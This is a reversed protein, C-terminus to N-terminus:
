ILSKKIGPLIHVGINPVITGFSGSLL